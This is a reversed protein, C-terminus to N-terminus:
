DFGVTIEEQFKILNVSSYVNDEDEQEEDSYVDDDYDYYQDDEFDDM